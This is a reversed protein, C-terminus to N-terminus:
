GLAEHQHGDSISNDVLTVNSNEKLLNHLELCKAMAGKIKDYAPVDEGNRILNKINDLRIYLDRVLQDLKGLHDNLNNLLAEEKVKEAMEGIGMIM